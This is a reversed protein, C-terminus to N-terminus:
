RPRATGCSSSVQFVRTSAGQVVDSSATIHLSNPVQFSIQDQLSESISSLINMGSFIIFDVSLVSFGQPKKHPILKQLMSLFSSSHGLGTATPAPQQPVPAGPPFAHSTLTWPSSKERTCEKCQSIKLIPETVKEGGRLLALNKHQM